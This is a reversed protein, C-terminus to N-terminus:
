NNYVQLFYCSPRQVYHKQKEALMSWRLPGNKGSFYEDGGFLNSFHKIISMMAHGKM